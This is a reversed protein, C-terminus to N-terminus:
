PTPDLTVTHPDPDLTLPQLMPLVSAAVGTVQNCGAEGGPGLHRTGGVEISGRTTPPAQPHYHTPLPPSHTHIPCWRVQLQAPPPQPPILSLYLRTRDLFLYFLPLLPAAM